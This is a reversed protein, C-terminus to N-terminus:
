KNIQCQSKRYEEFCKYSCFKAERNLILIKGNCELEDKKIVGTKQNELSKNCFSCVNNEKELKMMSNNLDESVKDMVKNYFAFWQKSNAYDKFYSSTIIEGFENMNNNISDFVNGKPLFQYATNIKQRDSM